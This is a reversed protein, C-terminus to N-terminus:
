EDKDSILQLGCLKSQVVNKRMEQEEDKCDWVYSGVEVRFAQM